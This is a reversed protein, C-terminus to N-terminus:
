IHAKGVTAYRIRQDHGLTKLLFGNPDIVLPKRMASLITEATLSQYEPWETAVALASAESLATVPTAHLTFIQALQEPLKKIAPDHAHVLAGQQALWECLEVSSSRRLTDTGPEHQGCHLFSSAASSLPPARRRRHERKTPAM